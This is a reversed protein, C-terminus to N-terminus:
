LGDMGQVRNTMGPAFGEGGQMMMGDIMVGEAKSVEQKVANYEANLEKPWCNSKKTALSLIRNQDDLYLMNSVTQSRINPAIWDTRVQVDMLMDGTSYDVQLAQSPDGVLNDMPMMGMMPMGMAGPAMGEMGTKPKSEMPKGIMQGYRVDFSQTHWQGMHYKYIDVAVGSGDALVDMPFLHLMKPIKVPDPIGAYASWLIIKDKYMSSEPAFWERGAIPNFVGFRIRYEYTAGPVVSDDHIWVLVDKLATLKTKEDIRAADAEREVDQVTRTARTPRVPVPVGFGGPGVGPGDMMPNNDGRGGRGGRGPQAGPQRRTNLGGMAGGPRNQNTSREQARREREEKLKQVEQEETMKRSELYYQAPLWKVQPSLFDYVEPQLIDKMVATERCSDMFLQVNGYTMQETTQPIDRLTKQYPDIRTFPVSEWEGWSDDEGQVRRQLEIRAIVPEALMPDRWQPKLRMGMFSQRFNDYLVELNLKASLTVIDIDQPKASVMRYSFEPTVDETPMRVTGRISALKVDEMAPILPILYERDGGIGIQGGGPVPWVTAISIKPIPCDLMKTLEVAKNRTYPKPTQLSGGLQDQIQQAMQLNVTDIESPSLKRNGVKQGYPNSLVFAWMLYLAAAVTLSLIVKDLYQDIFNGKKKSM